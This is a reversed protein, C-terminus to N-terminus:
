KKSLLKIILDKDKVQSKYNSIEQKLHVIDKKLGSVKEQCRALEVDTKRYDTITENVVKNNGAKKTQKDSMTLITIADVKFFTAFKELRDLDIRGTGNEIKSLTSRSLNIAVEVDEQSYDNM